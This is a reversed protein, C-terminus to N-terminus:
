RQAVRLPGRVDCAHFEASADMGDAGVLWEARVLGEETPYLYPAPMGGAIWHPLTKELWDLTEPDPAVGKGDLWGDCLNRLSAVRRAVTERAADLSAWGGARMEAIEADRERLQTQLHECGDHIAEFHVRWAHEEEARAGVERLQAILWPVDQKALTWREGGTATEARAEIATLRDGM